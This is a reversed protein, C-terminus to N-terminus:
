SRNVVFYGGYKRSKDVHSLLETDRDLAEDQVQGPTEPGLSVHWSADQALVRSDVTEVPTTRQAHIGRVLRLLTHLQKNLKELDEPASPPVLAALKHLKVLQSESLMDADAGPPHIVSALSWTGKDPIAPHTTRRGTSYMRRGGM